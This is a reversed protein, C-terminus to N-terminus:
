VIGNVYSIHDSLHRLVKHFLLITLDGEVRDRICMYIHILSLDQIKALCQSGLKQFEFFVTNIMFIYILYTSDDICFYILDPFFLHLHTYYVSFRCPAPAPNAM